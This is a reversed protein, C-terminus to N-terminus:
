LKHVNQFYKQTSLFCFSFINSANMCVYMRKTNKTFNLVEGKNYLFDSMPKTKPFIAYLNSINCCM